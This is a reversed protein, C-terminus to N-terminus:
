RVKKLTNTARDLRKMDITPADRVSRRIAELASPTVTSQTEIIKTLAILQQRGIQTTDAIKTVEEAVEKTATTVTNLQNELTEFRASLGEQSLEIKIGSWISLGLLAIGVVSLTSGGLGFVQHRFWVYSSCGVAISGFIIGAIFAATQINM